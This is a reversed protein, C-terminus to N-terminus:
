SAIGWASTLAERFSRRPPKPRATSYALIHALDLEMDEDEGTNFDGSESILDYMLLIRNYQQRAPKSLGNFNDDAFAELEHGLHSLVKCETLNHSM